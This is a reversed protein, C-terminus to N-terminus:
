KKSFTSIQSARVKLMSALSFQFGNERIQLSWRCVELDEELLYLNEGM